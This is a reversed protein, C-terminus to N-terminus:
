RTKNLKEREIRIEKVEKAVEEYWKHSTGIYILAEDSQILAEKAMEKYGELSSDLYKIARWDQKVALLALEKFNNIRRDVYKLAEWNNQIIKYAVHWYDKYNIDLFSLAKDYTKIATLVLKQYNKVNNRSIYEIAKGTKEVAVEAYKEYDEIDKYLYQMAEGNSNIAIWAIEKYYKYDKSVFQLAVPSNKVAAIAVEKYNDINKDIYYLAYGSEKVAILALKNYTPISRDIYMIAVGTKRIAAEAIELYGDISKDIYQLTIGDRKVIQLALEKYNTINKNIYKLAYRYKRAAKLIIERSINFDKTKDRTEIIKKIRPDKEWGFGKIEDDLEYIFKIEEETFEEKQKNKKNLKTLMKMNSIIKLYEKTTEKSLNPITEIKKAIIEEFGDEINQSEAVGRIEGIENKDMRIALRPIKYEGNKDKTYYIHFDGGIYGSIGCIQNKATTKNGATCWGTNYGQLSNYLKLYEPEIGKEEKLTAEKETEQHYTIWIGDEINSNEYSKAKAKSLLLPYLKAFNGSEILDKLENDNLKSKNIHDMILSICRGIVEPNVEIFPAITKKSRKQYVENAEDYNGIKLMGQFVWYKAWMPYKTNEDLLYDLWKDLSEKQSKIINEKFEDGYNPVNEEKIVYKRHYLHKLLEIDSLRSSNAAKSQIYELRDMYRKVAENKDKTGKATHKVEASLNLDKYLKNLFEEGNM